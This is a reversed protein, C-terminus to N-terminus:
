RGMKRKFWRHKKKVPKPEEGEGKALIRARFEEQEKTLRKMKAIAHIDSGYSTHGNGSTKLRHDARRMPRIFRPDNAAPVLEGTVEDVRRLALAPCHDWDIQEDDKFGLMLLVAKLKVSLPIFKRHEKTM